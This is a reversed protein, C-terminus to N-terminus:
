DDDKDGVADKCCRFGVPNHRNDPFYSYRKGHCTSQPGSRWFGGMVNYFKPNERSRTATWEALNGAMDFVAFYGRCEPKSGSAHVTTDRTVCANPEYREGYPYEWGYAGACALSWEETTCLRKDAVYCSDMAAYISIFATPEVGARNPWEYRDICYSTGGIEIYEMDEPCFRATELPKIEYFKSRPEMCNGCTDCGRYHLTQTVVVDVVGGDYPHWVEENEFRWEIAAEEDAKLVVEVPGRHLGGSPDPYIWPASTDRACPSRSTDAAESALTDSGATTDGALTDTTDTMGTTDGRRETATEPSPPTATRSAPEAVTDAVTDVGIASDHGATDATDVIAATDSMTGYGRAPGPTGSPGAPTEDDQGCTRIGVLVACLALLVLLAIVVRTRRRRPPQEQRNTGTM